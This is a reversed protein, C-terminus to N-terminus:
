AIRELLSVPFENFVRAVPLTQRDDLTESELMEGTLVNRYRSAPKWSPVILWTDDWAERGFAPVGAGPSLGAVMVPVVAVVAEQGHLRAFACVHNKKAGGSELPIYDGEWFLRRRDRRYNLATMTVYLKIRGDARTEFLERALERRNAHTGSGARQLEALLRARLEYDVPKRNDPDVLSLDWLEAGQYCDPIGPAAAKLVLQSLSNYIGHQAITEQFPLFDELFPNPGTRDLM